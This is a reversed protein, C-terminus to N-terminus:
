WRELYETIQVSFLIVNSLVQSKNKRNCVTHLASLQYQIVFHKTICLTIYLDHVTIVRM